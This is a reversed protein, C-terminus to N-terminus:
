QWGHNPLLKLIESSSEELEALNNKFDVTQLANNKLDIAQVSLSVQQESISEFEIYLLTSIGMERAKSRISQSSILKSHEEENIVRLNHSANIDAKIKGILSDAAQGIDGRTLLAVKEFQSVTMVASQTEATQKQPSKNQTLYFALGFLAIVAVLVPMLAFQKPPLTSQEQNATEAVTEEIRLRYGHKPLTDIQVNSDSFCKRLNWIATSLAKDGVPFNGDWVREILKERSITFEDEKLMEYLVSYTKWNLQCLEEGDRSITRTNPDLTFEGLQRLNM